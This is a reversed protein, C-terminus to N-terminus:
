TTPNSQKRTFKRRVAGLGILGSGFLLMTAPEPVPSSQTKYSFNDIFIEDTLDLRLSVLGLFSLQGLSGNQALTAYAIDIAALGFFDGGNSSGVAPINYSELPSHSPDYATLTWTTDSGGWNFGFADM